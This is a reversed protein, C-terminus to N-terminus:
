SYKRFSSRCSSCGLKNTEDQIWWWLEIMSQHQQICTKKQNGPLRKNRTWSTSARKWNRKSQWCWKTARTFKKMFSFNPGWHRWVPESLFPPWDNFSLPEALNRRPLLKRRFNVCDFIRPFTFKHTAINLLLRPHTHAWRADKLGIQDLWSVVPRVVRFSRQMSSFLM